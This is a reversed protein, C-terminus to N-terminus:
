NESTRMSMATNLRRTQGQRNSIYELLFISSIGLGLSAVIALVLLTKLQTPAPTDPSIAPEIVQIFGANKITNEKLAAEAFKEQLLAYEERAQTVNEQLQNYQPELEALQNAKDRREKIMRDYAATSITTGNEQGVQTAARDRELELESLQQQAARLEDGLVGVGNEIKFDTLAQEADRLQQQASRLQEDLFTKTATAPKARVEGYYTIATAVHANAIQEALKPSPALVSVYLFDSDSVPEVDLVYAENVNEVGFQRITRNYVERSNLIEIFNNRAVTMEERRTGARYTEFLQVNEEQPATLQLKAQAEYVPETNVIRFGLGATTAIMVALVILIRQSLTGLGRFLRM